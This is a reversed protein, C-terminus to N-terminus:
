QLMGDLGEVIQSFIGPYFKIWLSRAGPIANPPFQVSIEKSKSLRDSLTITQEKGDPLVEIPRRVADSLASGMAKVSITHRGIANVTLPFYVVKVEDKALTVKRA